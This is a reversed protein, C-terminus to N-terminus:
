YNPVHHTRCDFHGKINANFFTGISGAQLLESVTGDDIECYHYYTGNLNILMYSNDRDYCVRRVFSSRTIDTCKFPALNVEGRYKVDATEASAMRPLAAVLAIAFRSSRLLRRMPLILCILSGITRGDGVGGQQFHTPLLSM